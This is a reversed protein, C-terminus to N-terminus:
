TVAIFTVPVGLRRCRAAQEYLLRWHRVGRQGDQEAETSTISRFSSMRSPWWGPRRRAGRDSYGNSTITLNIPERRLEDLIAGFDPHMGNEGTGLNVSRVPLWRM